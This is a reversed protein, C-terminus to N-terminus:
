RFMLGRFAQAKQADILFLQAQIQGSSDWLQIRGLERAGAWLVIQEGQKQHLGSWIQPKSEFATATKAQLPRSYALKFTEREQLDIIVTEGDLSNLLFQIASAPFSLFVGSLLFSHILTQVM